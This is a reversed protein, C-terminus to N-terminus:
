DGTHGEWGGTYAPTTCKGGDADVSYAASGPGSPVKQLFGATVLDSIGGTPVKGANASDSAQWAAVASDLTRVNAKVSSDMASHQYGSVKPVIVAALIGLIAIVVILEILTFGKKKKGKVNKTNKMSTGGKIIKM